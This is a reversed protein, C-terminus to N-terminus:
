RTPTPTPGPVERPPACLKGARGHGTSFVLPPQLVVECAWETLQREVSGGFIGNGRCGSYRVAIDTALDGSWRRVLAATDGRSTCSEDDPGSGMPATTVARVVTSAEDGSLQKSAVLQGPSRSLDYQCLTVRGTPTGGPATAAVTLTSRAPCGNPDTGTLPRVSAVIQDAVTAYADTHVVEVVLGDLEATATKWGAPLDWGRDRVEAPHVSVFGQLDAAPLKRPCLIALVTRRDPALDVFPESPRAPREGTCWDSGPAYGYGWRDPVQYSLARYSEWRWGTRPPVGPAGTSADGPAQEPAQGGVPVASTRSVNGSFQSIALPIAVAAVLVVAAAVPLWRPLGTRGRAATPLPLPQFDPEGAHQRLGDRFAREARDDSANPETM